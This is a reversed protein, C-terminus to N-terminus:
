DCPPGPPVERCQVRDRSPNTACVYNKGSNSGSCRACWTTESGAREFQSDLIKVDRTDCGLQAATMTETSKCGSLCGVVSFLLVAFRCFSM